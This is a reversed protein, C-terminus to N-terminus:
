DRFRYLYYKEDGTINQDVAKILRLGPMQMSDAPYPLVVLRSGSKLSEAKLRGYVTPQDLTRGPLYQNDWHIFTFKQKRGADWFEKDDLYPILATITHINYTLLQKDSPYGTKIFESMEQAGSFSKRIDLGISFLGTIASTFFLLSLVAYVFVGYFSNRDITKLRERWSKQMEPYHGAWLVFIVGLLIFGFHRLYGSHKFTFILFLGGISFLYFFLMQRDKAILRIILLFVVFLFFLESWHKFHLTMGPNSLYNPILAHGIADFIWPWDSGNMLGPKWSDAPPIMQFLFFSFGGALIILSALVKPKLVSRWGTKMYDWVFILSLAAAAFLSHTNTNALL